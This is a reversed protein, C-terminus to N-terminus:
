CNLRGDKTFLYENAKITEVIAERSTLFNYERDLMVRYEELLAKKFEEEIKEAEEEHIFEELWDVPKWDKLHFASSDSAQAQAERWKVFAAIYDKHFDAAIKFTEGEKGHKQRIFRSVDLFHEILSGQINSRYLDFEEIDLGISEADDYIIDWWDHHVNIEWLKDIAKEQATECLESFSYLTVSRTTPM